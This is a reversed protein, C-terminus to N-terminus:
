APDPLKPPRPIGSLGMREALKALVSGTSKRQWTPLRELVVEAVLAGRAFDVLEGATLSLEIAQGWQIQGLTSQAPYTGGYAPRVEKAPEPPAVREGALTVGVLVGADTLKLRLAAGATTTGARAPEPLGDILAKALGAIDGLSGRYREAVELIRALDRGAEIHAALVRPPLAVLWLRGARRRELRERDAALRQVADEVRGVLREAHRRRVILRGEFDDPRGGDMPEGVRPAVRDLQLLTWQARLDHQPVARPAVREILVDRVEAAKDPDPALVPELLLLDAALRQVADEVRGVLREAHRRRVILRGEFDDPRGGDMPEGVRPAVRDLQLLTWQARLDHQPVARPAVREILVDRVEAAKDPDPALVPELLLLDLLEVARRGEAAAAVQLMSVAQRWRRDSVAWAKETAIQWLGVLARRVEPPLEVAAARARLAELDTPTLRDEQALVVPALAGTAVRLFAAPDSVPPVSLRVLFRDYLAGLGGEPDPLENSAGVLGILPVPDRRRGHHFVRENILTLLSNLIASNAKFVEDLFAIHAAPLFGHTLRQYDEEKLARISVPGFLEDPHTFRSLLYEFYTADAFCGCLARALMSKGTGPPGLLLAHGGALIALLVARAQLPREAFAADLAALVRRLRTTLADEPGESSREAEEEEEWRRDSRDGVPSAWAVAAEAVGRSYAMLPEVHEAPVPHMGVWAGYRLALDLPSTGPHLRLRGDSAWRAVQSLPLWGALGEARAREVGTERVVRDVLEPMGAPGKAECALRLLAAVPEPQRPLHGRGEIETVGPIEPWRQM